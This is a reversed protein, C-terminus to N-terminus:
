VPVQQAPMVLDFTARRGKNMHITSIVEHPLDRPYIRLLSGKAHHGALNLLTGIYRVHIRTHTAPDIGVLALQWSEWEEQGQIAILVISDPDQAVAQALAAVAYFPTM